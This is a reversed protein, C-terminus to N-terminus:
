ILGVHVSKCKPCVVNLKSEKSKFNNECDNCYYERPENTDEGMLQRVDKTRAGFLKKPNVGQQVAKVKLPSYCNNCVGASRHPKDNHGCIVCENSFKSWPKDAKHSNYKRKTKKDAVEIINDVNKDKKIVARINDLIERIGNDAAERQKFLEALQNIIETM